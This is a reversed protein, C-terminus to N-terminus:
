DDQDAGPRPNMRVPYAKKGMLGNWLVRNFRAM